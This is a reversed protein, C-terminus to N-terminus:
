YDAEFIAFLVTKPLRIYNAVLIKTM